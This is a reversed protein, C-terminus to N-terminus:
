IEKDAAPGLTCGKKEDVLTDDDDDLLRVTLGTFDPSGKM